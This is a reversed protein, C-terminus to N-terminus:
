SFAPVTEPRRIPNLTNSSYHRNGISLSNRFNSVEKLWTLIARGKM